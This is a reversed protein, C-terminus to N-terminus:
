RIRLHYGQQLECGPVEEGGVLADKINLKDIQKQEPIIVFFKDTIENANHVVVSAPSKQRAVTFLGDPTKIKDKALLTMQMLMYGKLGDIRNDLAKKRASLRDIEAKIGVTEAEMNKVMMVCGEIKQDFEGEIEQLVSELVELNADPDDILDMVQNFTSQLEYLKAM